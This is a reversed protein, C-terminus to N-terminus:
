RVTKGKNTWARFRLQGTQSYVHGPGVDVTIDHSQYQKNGRIYNLMKIGQYIVSEFVILACDETSTSAYTDPDASPACFCFQMHRQPDIKVVM